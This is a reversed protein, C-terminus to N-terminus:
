SGAPQMLYHAVGWDKGDNHGFLGATALYFYRWRKAWLAADPGYVGAFISRVEDAHADHRALWDQATRAYHSGPWWWEDEVHFVDPFCHMLQRSPMLGGTFFHQAIWDSADSKDFRYPTSRHAFVHVMLKGDPRLWTRIRQLLGHWNAMHEFMEVSVVRDFSRETAFANMDATTVQLNALRQREAEALIYARQSRSNSVALIRANPFRRAMYLSLSGWGCGLELVDQGDALRAHAVTEALAADEAEALSTGPKAYLCCSYKRQPGLVLQFYDAPIEYHQENADDVNTAIPFSAMGAAFRATAEPSAAALQRATRTVLAGIALRAATDPLPLREAANIIYSVVTM